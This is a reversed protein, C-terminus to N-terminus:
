MGLPLLYLEPVGSNYNSFIQCKPKEDVTAAPLGVLTGTATANTIGLMSRDPSFIRKLADEMNRSPYLGDTFYSVAIDVLYFLSPLPAFSEILLPLLGTLFKPLFPANVYKRRQFVHKALAEFKDSSEEISSGNIFMDAVILGGSSIGFAM